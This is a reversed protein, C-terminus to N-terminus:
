RYTIQQVINRPFVRALTAVENQYLAFADSEEKKKDKLWGYVKYSLFSKVAEEYDNPLQIFSDLDDDVHLRQNIKLRVYIKMTETGQPPPYVMLKRRGNEAWDTMVFPANYATFAMFSETAQRRLMLVDNVDRVEVKRHVSSWMRDGFLLRKFSTPLESQSWFRGGATWAGSGVSAQSVAGGETYDATGISSDLTFNLADVVSIVFTGNAATNGEVGSITVTSGDAFGHEETTTIQIPTANTANSVSAYAYLEFTNATKNKVQFNGNAALNGGVNSGAIYEDNVFGHAPMTVVIPTANTAGTIANRDRFPYESQNAALQLRWKDRVEVADCIKKQAEIIWVKMTDASLPATRGEENISSLVDDIIQNYTPYSYTFGM